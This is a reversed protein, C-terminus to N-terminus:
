VISKKDVLLFIGFLLFFVLVPFNLEIMVGVISMFSRNNGFWPTSLLSIGYGTFVLAYALPLWISHLMKWKFIKFAILRYLAFYVIGALAMTGYVVFLTDM